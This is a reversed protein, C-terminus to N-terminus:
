CPIVRKTTNQWNHMMKIAKVRKSVSLRKLYYGMATWDVKDFLVPLIFLYVIAVSLRIKEFNLWHCSTTAQPRLKFQMHKIDVSESYNALYSQNM